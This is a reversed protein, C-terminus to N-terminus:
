TGCFTQLVREQPQPPDAYSALDPQDDFPKALVTLLEEFPAFDNRSVAAEIVAEVRHNRPIFAPNVARMAVQRTAADQPEDALRQRWRGAWADYAAPDTFQERVSVDGAPDRAADSLRRFTLTFDAQNGAMAKLLDNALERDDDRATFLGLKGRLGTYYATDFTEAFNGLATQAEAIAKEQDDSLLPLLCEAFRTLNWLAIRPQNGYAYRGQEDISSFVTAPDYDDMFACPGYDITEGSISTNDTNMVGHIFGVLLWRAVLGAQRAIVADLLAHYPREASAV